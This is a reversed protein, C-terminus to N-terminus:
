TLQLFKNFILENTLQQHYGQSMQLTFLLIDKNVLALHSFFATFKKNDFLYVSKRTKFVNKKFNKLVQYARPIDLMQFLLLM